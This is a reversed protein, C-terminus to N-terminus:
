YGEAYVRVDHHGAPVRVRVPTLGVVEGDLIVEASVIKSEVVLDIAATPDISQEFPMHAVDLRLEHANAPADTGGHNSPAAPAPARAACAVIALLFFARM